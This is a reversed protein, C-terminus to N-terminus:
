NEVQTVLNVNEIGCERIVKMLRIVEGYRRSEDARLAFDKGTIDMAKLTSKLNILSLESGKYIIKGNKDLNIIENEKHSVSERGMTPLKLHSEMAPATVMFVILLIFTLDVLPTVDINTLSSVTSRHRRKAM